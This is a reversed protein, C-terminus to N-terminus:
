RRKRACIRGTVYGGGVQFVGLIGLGAILRPWTLEHGGRPLVVAAMGAIGLVLPVVMTALVQRFTM